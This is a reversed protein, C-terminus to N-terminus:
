IGKYNLIAELRYDIKVLDIQNAMVENIDKYAYPHEDLLDKGKNKLWAKNNMLSNLSNIDLTERAQTRSLKRGAGHSASCLSSKNGLGTVIFSSTGMSGPIVGRDGERARIAGKRTVWLNKNFHNEKECYNHHCNITELVQLEFKLFKKLASLLSNMMVERNKRAYDQAWLMDKIYSDFQDTGEVFYALDPDPLSIFYKKMEDKALHIHFDALIKGVGRSGSHIVCWINNLNDTCVEVFHNGGGLTGLQLVARQKDKELLTYTFMSVESLPASLEKSPIAKEVMTLLSDLNDPLCDLTLNTKAAIMGCGIDVGVCSPIIAGHTPIVSGVTSGFGYHADAMLALHPWVFPLNASNIAQKKTEEDLDNAWSLIKSDIKEISM